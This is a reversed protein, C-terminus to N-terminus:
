IGEQGAQHSEALGEVAGANGLQSAKGQEGPTSTATARFDQGNRIGHKNKKGKKGRQCFARSLCSSSVGSPTWKARKGTSGCM